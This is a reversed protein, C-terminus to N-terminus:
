TTPVTIKDCTQEQAITSQMTLYQTAITIFTKPPVWQIASNRPNTPEWGVRMGKETNKIAELCIEPGRLSVPVYQLAVGEQKVAALCIEKNRLYSPVYQLARGVKNVAMLCLEKTKLDNPVYNLADGRNRVAELCIEKNKIAKPVYHLSMGNNKVAELCLDATRHQENVSHLSWNNQKAIEFHLSKIPCYAILSLPINNELLNKVITKDKMKEYNGNIRKIARIIQNLEDETLTELM